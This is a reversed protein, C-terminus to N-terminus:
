IKIGDIADFKWTKLLDLKVCQLKTLLDDLSTKIRYKDRTEESGTQCRYLMSMWDGDALEVGYERFVIRDAEYHLPENDIIVMWIM